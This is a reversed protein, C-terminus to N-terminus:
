RMFLRLTWVSSILGIFFVFFYLIVIISYDRADQVTSTAFTSTAEEEEQIGSDSTMYVRFMADFVAWAGDTWTEGTGNGYEFVGDTYSPSTSDIRWYASPASGNFSVSICYTSSSVSINPSFDFREWTATSGIDACDMTVNGLEGSAGSCKGGTTTRFSVEVDGSCSNRLLLLDIFDVYDTTTAKLTQGYWDITPESYDDNVDYAAGLYASSTFPLFFLLFLLYRM